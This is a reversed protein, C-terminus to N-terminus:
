VEGTEIALVSKEDPQVISASEAQIDLGEPIEIEAISVPRYNKGKEKDFVTMAFAKGVYGRNPYNELLNSVEVATLVITGAGGTTLDIACALTAPREKKMTDADTLKVERGLYMPTLFLVYVPHNPEQRIVPLTVKKAIKVSSPDFKYGTSKKESM